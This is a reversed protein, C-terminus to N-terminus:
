SPATKAADSSPAKKGLAALVERCEQQTLCDSAFYAKVGLKDLRASQGTGKGGYLFIPLESSNAAARFKQNMESIHEEDLNHSMLIALPAFAQIQSLGDDMTQASVTQCGFDRFQQLIPEARSADEDIVMICGAEDGEEGRLQDSIFLGVETLLREQGPEFEFGLAFGGKQRPRVNRVTARIENTAESDPLTFLLTVGGGVELEEDAFVGCGGLSIDRFDTEVSHGDEGEVMCRGGLKIREHKRFARTHVGEPWALRLRPPETSTEWDMISTSFAYATGEHVFRVICAAGFSLPIRHDEESPRDLTLYNGERWERLISMGRRHTTRTLCIELLMRSGTRLLDALEHTKETM